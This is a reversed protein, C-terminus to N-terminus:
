GWPHRGCETGRTYLCRWWSDAFIRFHSVSNQDEFILESEVPTRLAPVAPPESGFRSRLRSCRHSRRFSASGMM